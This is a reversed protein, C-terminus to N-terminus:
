SRQAKADLSVHPETTRHFFTRNRLPNRVNRLLQMFRPARHDLANLVRHVLPAPSSGGGHGAASWMASYDSQLPATTQFPTVEATKRAAVLLSVPYGGDLQVRRRMEKPDPVAYFPGREGTKRFGEVFFMAGVEFGNEPSLVRYFLEPSFQYFGHGCQNNAPTHIILWGGVRVMRMCNAIAVPFNFVHELTGGDFLLDFRGYLEPRAPVNLDHVITAGEYDSYDVADVRTAGLLRFLDDAFEHDTSLYRQVAARDLDSANLLRSVDQTSALVWQRGLTGVNGFAPFVSTRMNLLMDVDATFLGM